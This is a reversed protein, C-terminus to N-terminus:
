KRSDPMCANTHLLDLYMNHAVGEFHAISHLKPLTSEQEVVQHTHTFPSCDHTQQLCETYMAARLYWGLM